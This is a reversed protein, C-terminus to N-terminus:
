AAERAARMLARGILDAARLRASSSPSYILVEVVPALAAPLGLALGYLRGGDRRALLRKKEELERALLELETEAAMDEYYARRENRFSLATSM